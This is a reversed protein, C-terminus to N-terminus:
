SDRVSQATSLGSLSLMDLDYESEFPFSFSGLLDMSLLEEEAFSNVAAGGVLWEATTASPPDPGPTAEGVCIRDVLIRTSQRRQFIQRERRNQVAVHIDRLIRSYQQAHPSQPSLRELIALAQQYADEIDALTNNPAFIRFALTLGASFTWARPFTEASLFSSYQSLRPTTKSSLAHTRLALDWKWPM